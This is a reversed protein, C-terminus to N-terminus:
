NNKSRKKDEVSMHVDTIGLKELRGAVQPSNGGSVILVRYGKEDKIKLAVIYFGNGGIMEIVEKTKLM